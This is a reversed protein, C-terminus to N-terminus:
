DEPSAPPETDTSEPKAQGPWSHGPRLQTYYYWDAMRKLWYPKKEDPVADSVSEVLVPLSRVQATINETQYQDMEKLTRFRVIRVRFKTKIDLIFAAESSSAAKENEFSFRNKM